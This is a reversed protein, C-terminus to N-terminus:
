LDRKCFLRIFSVINQLLSRYNLRDWQGYGGWVDFPRLASNVAFNIYKCLEAILVARDFPQVSHRLHV